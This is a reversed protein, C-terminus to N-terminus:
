GLRKRFRLAAVGVAAVVFAALKGLPWALAALEAGRLVVGRVIDNFHTLPLVQAIWQVPRPMGDFPFLFGSLLISPLMVLIGLQMAQFQSRALTSILLGLALTAAIFLSAGLYLQLLSGAVPVDFVLVGVTLIITTQVLGVLVYPLLKGLMLEVPRVPTTILLELNGRERERVLAISTFVVMTMILIAGILAPVIQVATRREPNYELQVEFTRVPPPAAGPRQPLPMTALARVAGEIGPLSGDIFLQAAARDGDIRRREFDHPIYVGASIEGAAMRARLEAVSGPTAVVRLVQSAQLDAILARSGSTRAEDVVAARVGRVDFNIGFGFILIQMLPLGVVMGGTLRDRALQRLEKAAVAGMRALSKPVRM